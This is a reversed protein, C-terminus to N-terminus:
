ANRDEMFDRTDRETSRSYMRMWYRGERQDESLEYVTQCKECQWQSGIGIDKARPDPLKCECPPDVRKIFPM